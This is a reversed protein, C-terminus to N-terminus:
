CVTVGGVTWGLGGVWKGSKQTSAKERGACRLCRRQESLNGVSCSFCVARSCASCANIYTEFGYGDDVMADEEGLGVGCDECATSQNATEAAPIPSLAPSPSSQAPTPLKWFNHLSPQNPVPPAQPPPMSPMSATPTPPSFVHHPPEPLQQAQYLMKLTNQHVEHESPRGNRFRKFTRSPLHSPTCSRSRNQMSPSFAVTRPSVPSDTDMMVVDEHDSRMPSPCGTMRSSSFSSLEDESRKRKLLM